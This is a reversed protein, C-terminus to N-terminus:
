EEFNFFERPISMVDMRLKLYDSSTAVDTNGYYKKALM